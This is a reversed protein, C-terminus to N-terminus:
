RSIVVQKKGKNIYVGKQTPRGALKRGQLDHWAGAENHITFEQEPLRGQPGLPSNHISVGTTQGANYRLGDYNYYGGNSFPMIDTLLDHNTFIIQQITSPSDNIAPGIWRWILRGNATTGVMECLDGGENSQLDTNDDATRVKCYIPTDWCFRPLEFYACYRGDILTVCDPADAPRTYDPKGPDPLAEANAYKMKADFEDKWADVRVVVDRVVKEMGTVNWYSLLVKGEMFFSKSFRPLTVDVGVGVQPVVGKMTLDNAFNYISKDPHVRTFGVGADLALRCKLGAATQENYRFGEVDPEMFRHTDMFYTHIANMLKKPKLQSQQLQQVAQPSAQLMQIAGLLNAQQERKGASLVADNMVAVKGSADVMYFYNVNGERHHFLSIDGEQVLYEAFVTKESGGVPFTRTVYCINENKLQYEKIEGPKYSQYSTHGDEKFLCERGNKTDSRYDITGHITDNGNTIVFGRQPNIQAISSTAAMTLCLLLLHKKM